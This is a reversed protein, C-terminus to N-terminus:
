HRDGAAEDAGQLQWGKHEFTQRIGTSMEAMQGAEGQRYLTTLLIQDGVTIRLESGHVMTRVRAEAARSDKVCRWLSRESVPAQALRPLSPPEWAM